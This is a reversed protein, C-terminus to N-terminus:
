RPREKGTRRREERLRRRNERMESLEEQGVARDHDATEAPARRPRRRMGVVIVFAGLAVVAVPILAGSAAKRAFSAAPVSRAAVLPVSGAPRGDVSVSLRGLQQGADIPGEVEDPAQVRTAVRQDERLTIRLGRGAVLPLAGDRYQIEAAALPAGKAAVNRRQYLSFGYELLKRTESDRAAESRTGLVASVLEVGNRRASGVLVYGAGLTHGTKVGTVWPERLALTNRTVIRRAKRGSKLVATRSAAADAFTPNQLLRRALAVLDQATSHNGPDDLGVPNTYHTGTLGLAAAARNMARVFRRESGSVAQALTAAADNASRLVLAYLLDKVTLREGPQLGLVSEVPGAPYRPAKVRRRLPLREVALYATMLKTASAIPLERGVAKGALADGSRADILSWAKAQLRPEPPAAAAPAAAATGLVATLALVAVM